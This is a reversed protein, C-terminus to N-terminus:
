PRAAPWTTPTELEACRAEWFTFAGELDGRASIFGAVLRIAGIPGAFRTCGMAVGGIVVRLVHLAFAFQDSRARLLAATNEVESDNADRCIAVHFGFGGDHRIWIGTPAPVEGSFWFRIAAALAVLSSRVLAFVDSGLRCALRVVNRVKDTASPFLRKFWGWARKLGDWMQGGVVGIRDLWASQYVGPQSALETALAQVDASSISEGEHSLAVIARFFAPFTDAFNEPDFGAGAGAPQAKLDAAFKGLAARFAATDEVAGDPNVGYHLLWLEICALREVFCQAAPLISGRLDFGALHRVFGDHDFLAALTLPSYDRPLEPGALKLANAVDAFGAMADALQAPTLRLAHPETELLGLAVLRRQAARALVTTREPVNAWRAIETEGEFTYLDELATWTEPGAWGDVTIGAETQFQKIAAVLPPAFEAAPDDAPLYGLAFVMTRVARVRDSADAFEAEDRAPPTFYGADAAAAAAAALAPVVALPDNARNALAAALPDASAQALLPM